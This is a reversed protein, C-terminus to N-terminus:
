AGDDDQGQALAQDDDGGADIQGHAGQHGQRAHGGGAGDGEPAQGGRGGQRDRQHQADGEADEVADNHRAEVDRGHNDGQGGHVGGPADGVEVVVARLNDAERGAEGVDAAAVQPGDGDRGDDHHHQH